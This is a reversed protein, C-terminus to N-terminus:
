WTYICGVGEPNNCQMYQSAFDAFDYINVMGDAPEFDAGECNDLMGCNTYLWYYAAVELDGLDVYCDGNLDAALGYGGSHVEDCNYPIPTKSFHVWNINWNSSDMSIRMFQQGASLNVDSTYISKWTQWGGSATFSLTGTKNVGGFSIHLSGGASQSAVRVELYYNGASAVDVTYELWEGSQIYGVDYGGEGCTEVDVNDTRYQNGSNGSTTDHYALGEGGSDYNEVQIRGPIPHADPGPYPLHAATPSPTASVENSYGSENYSGDFATVVYYYTTGNVVNNDAYNSGTVLSGNIKSYGSGQTTSRYVNYGELDPRNSDNWDLSVTVNGAAALLGTPAAPATSDTPTASVENSDDSENYSGDVATVVYYYTTGDVIDNDTYDSSSVFNQNIKVYGSGSTTSRYVYYGHLDPENNDNWDMSVMEEGAAASLGTPVAPPTTDGSADPVRLLLMCSAPLTVTFNNSSIFSQSPLSAVNLPNPHVVGNISIDNKDQINIGGSIISGAPEVLWRQGDAGALFGSISIDATLSATPSNNVIFVTLNGNADEAAYARVLSHTSTAGVMDRGFYHILLPHVYWVPWTFFNGDFEPIWPNSGTWNNKAMELIYQAHFLANVYCKIRDYSSSGLADWETMCYKIQGVYGSGLANSVMSNLDTTWQAIDNVSYSLLSPNSSVGSGMYPYSHIILFDPVAGKASSAVLMDYTWNGNFWGGQDAVAGIKIDPNVAKMALYFDAFYNATIPGMSAQLGDKRGRATTRTVSKGTNLAFPDPHSTRFGRLQPM